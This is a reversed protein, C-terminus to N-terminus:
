SDLLGVFKYFIKVRQQTKGDVSEVKGIEIKEVLEMLLDRDIEQVTAYREILDAWQMINQTKLEYVTQEELLAIQKVSLANREDECNRILNTCVEKSILGDAKDEYIQVLKQELKLLRSMTQTLEASIRGQKSECGNNLKDMLSNIVADKDIAAFAKIDDMLIQKLATEKILHSSCAASATQQYRICQYYISSAITFSNGCDPCRLLGRFLRPRPPSM